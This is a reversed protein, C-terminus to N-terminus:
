SQRAHGRQSENRGALSAGGGSDREVRRSRSSGVSSSTATSWRIPKPAATVKSATSRASREVIATCSSLV